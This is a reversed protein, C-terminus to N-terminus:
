SAASVSEGGAAITPEGLVFPTAIAPLAVFRYRSSAYLAFSPTWTKSKQCCFV